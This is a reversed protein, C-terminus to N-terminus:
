FIKRYHKYLHAAQDHLKELHTSAQRRLDASTVTPKKTSWNTVAATVRDAIHSAEGEPTKVSLCAAMISDHLKQPQFVETVRKGQRKIIDIAM